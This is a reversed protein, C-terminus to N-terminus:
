KVISIYIHATKIYPLIINNLCICLPSGTIWTHWFSPWQENQTDCPQKYTSDRHYYGDAAPGMSYQRDQWLMISCGAPRPYSWSQGWHRKGSKHSIIIDLHGGAIFPSRPFSCYICSDVLINCPMNKRSLNAFASYKSTCPHVILKSGMWYEPKFGPDSTFIREIAAQCHIHPTM